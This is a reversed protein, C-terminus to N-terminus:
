NIWGCAKLCTMPRSDLVSHTSLFDEPYGENEKQRLYNAVNLKYYGWCKVPCRLKENFSWCSSTSTKFVGKRWKAQPHRPPQSLNRRAWVCVCVWLRLRVSTKTQLVLIKNQVYRTQSSKTNTHPRFSEAPRPFRTPSAALELHERGAAYPVLIMNSGWFSCRSDFSSSSSSVSETSFKKSPSELPPAWSSVHPGCRVCPPLLCPSHPM